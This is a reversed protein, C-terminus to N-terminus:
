PQSTQFNEGSKLCILKWFIIAIIKQVKENDLEKEMSNQSLFLAFSLLSIESTYEIQNSLYKFTKLESAKLQIAFSSTPLILVNHTQYYNEFFSTSDPVRKSFQYVIYPNGSDSRLKDVSRFENEDLLVIEPFYYYYHNSDRVFLSKNVLEIQKTKKM